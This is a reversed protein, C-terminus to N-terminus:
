LRNSRKDYRNMDYELLLLQEVINPYKKAVAKKGREFDNNSKFFFVIALFQTWTMPKVQREIYSVMQRSIGIKQALVTQSVGLEKRLTPLAITLTRIMEEQKKSLEFNMLLVQKVNFIVSVLSTITSRLLLM